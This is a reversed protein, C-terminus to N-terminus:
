SPDPPVLEVSDVIRLLDDVEDDPADRTWASWILLPRGDLDIVWADYTTGRGLYTVQATPAANLYAENPCQGARGQERLRLHVVRHGFRIGREPGSVVELRPVNTLAEVLTTTDARIVEGMTCGPQALWQVDLGLMGVVWGPGSDLVDENSGVQESTGDSLGEFRNPGAWSNWGAPLTFRVTPLTPDLPELEYTGVELTTMAGVPFPRASSAGDSDEAPQPDARDGYTAALLGSAGLVCATVAAVVAHRRRRRDRGAASILDFDPLPTSHEAEERFAELLRESM